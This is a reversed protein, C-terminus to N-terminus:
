LRFGAKSEINGEREARGWSASQRERESIFMLFILFFFFGKQFIASMIGYASQQKWNVIYPPCREMAIIYLYEEKRKIAEYNETPEGM